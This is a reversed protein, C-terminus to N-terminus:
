ARIAAEAKAVLEDIGKRLGAGSDPSSNVSFVTDIVTVRESFHRTIFEMEHSLLFPSDAILIKSHSNDLALYNGDNGFRTFLSMVRRERLSDIPPNTVQSFNQRFFHHFGRQRDSLVAMPTDDGMSGVAEKGEDAMPHLIAEIDEHTYGSALQFIKINIPNLIPSESTLSSSENNNRFGSDQTGAVAIIESLRVINGAWESYPYQASLLDKLENDRYLEGVSLDIGLIDGPGLRGRELIQADSVEVMGSESCVMIIGDKTITYRMPRLGNRDMGAIVWKGDTAAIAAPGDWQESISNLCSFMDKYAQPMDSTRSWAPPILTLKTLPLPRGARTLIEFVSDLAGTDSTNDPIVPVIDNEFGNFADCHFTAEHSRMFNINGKLTNIEGNHAIM